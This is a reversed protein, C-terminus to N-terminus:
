KPSQPKLILQERNLGIKRPKRGTPDTSETFLTAKIDFYSDDPAVTIFGDLKRASALGSVFHGAHLNLGKLSPNDWYVETDWDDLIRNVSVVHGHAISVEVSQIYEYQELKVDPFSVTQLSASLPHSACGSAFFAFGAFLSVSSYM